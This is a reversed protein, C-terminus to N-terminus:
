DGRWRLLRREVAQFGTTLAIGGAALVVVGAFLQPMNFVQASQL